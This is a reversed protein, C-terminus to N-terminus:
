LSHWLVDPRTMDARQMGKGAKPDGQSSMARWEAAPSCGCHCRDLLPFHHAMMNEWGVGAPDQSSQGRSFAADLHFNGSPPLEGFRM